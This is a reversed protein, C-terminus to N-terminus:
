NLYTFVLNVMSTLTNLYKPGLVWKRVELVEMELVEVENWKGLCTYTSALKSLSALADSHQPGNVRKGIEVARKLLQVQTAYSGVWFGGVFVGDDQLM